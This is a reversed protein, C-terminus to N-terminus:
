KKKNKVRFKAFTEKEIKEQKKLFFENNIQFKFQSSLM